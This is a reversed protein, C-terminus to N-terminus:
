SRAFSRNISYQQWPHIGREIFRWMGVGGSALAQKVRVSRRLSVEISLDRRSLQGRELKRVVHTLFDCTKNGPRSIARPIM